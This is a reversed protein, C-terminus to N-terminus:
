HQGPRTFRTAQHEPGRWWCAFCPPSLSLQPLDAVGVARGPSQQTSRDGETQARWGSAAGWPIRQGPKNVPLVAGLVSASTDSHPHHSDSTAWPPPCSGGPATSYTSAQLRCYSGTGFWSGPTPSTPCSPLTHSCSLLGLRPSGTLNEM